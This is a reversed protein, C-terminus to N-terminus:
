FLALSGTKHRPLVPKQERSLSAFLLKRKFNEPSKENGWLSYRREGELNNRACWWLYNREWIVVAVWVNSELLKIILLDGFSTLFATKKQYIVHSLPVKPLVYDTFCSDNINWDTCSKVHHWCPVHPEENLSGSNVVSKIIM